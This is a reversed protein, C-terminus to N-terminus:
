SHARQRRGAKPAGPKIFLWVFLLSVVAFALMGQYVVLPISLM